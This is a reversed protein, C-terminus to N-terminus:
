AKVRFQIGHAEATRAVPRGGNNKPDQVPGHIFCPVKVETEAHDDASGWDWWNLDCGNYWVRFVDGVAANNPLDESRAPDYELIYSEGPQLSVFRRHKTVNLPVDPEDTLLWGCCGSGQSECPEWTAEGSSEDSSTIRRALRFSDDLLYTYFIVPRSDSGDSELTIHAQVKFAQGLIMEEPVELRTTFVPAGPDSRRKEPPNNAQEVTRRRYAENCRWRWESLNANALGRKGLVRARDPWPEEEEKVTFTFGCDGALKITSSSDRYELKTGKERNEAASGWAWYRIESGRFELTYTEGVVLQHHYNEPLTLKRTIDGAAGLEQINLTAQNNTTVEIDQRSLEPDYLTRAPPTGIDVEDRGTETERFLTM